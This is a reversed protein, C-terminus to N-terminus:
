EEEEDGGWSCVECNASVCSESHWMSEYASKEQELDNLIRCLNIAEAKNLVVVEDKNKSNKVTWCGWLGSDSVCFTYEWKM